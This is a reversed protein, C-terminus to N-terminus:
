IPFESRGTLPVGMLDPRCCFSEFQKLRRLPKIAIDSCSDSMAIDHVFRAFLTTSLLPFCQGATAFHCTAAVWFLLGRRLGWLNSLDTMRLCKILRPKIRVYRAAVHIPIRQREVALLILGAWRCCEYMAGAETHSTKTMPVFDEIRERLSAQDELLEKTLVQVHGEADLFTGLWRHILGTLLLMQTEIHSATTTYLWRCTLPSAWQEPITCNGCQATPPFLDEVELFPTHLHEAADIAM